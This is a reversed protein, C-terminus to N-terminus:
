LASKVLKCEQLQKSIVEAFNFYHEKKIFANENVWEDSAHAVLMTKIEQEEMRSHTTLYEAMKLLLLKNKQLIDEAKEQCNRILKLAQETHTQQHMIALNDQSASFRIYIPDDGMAYEKIARNAMESVREIDQSVGSCTNEIGFVIKEAIYGGLGIIM